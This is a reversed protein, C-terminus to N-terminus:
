AEDALIRETSELLIGGGEAGGPENSAQDSEVHGGMRKVREGHVNLLELEAVHLGYRNTPHNLIRVLDLTVIRALDNDSHFPTWKVFTSHVFERAAQTFRGARRLPFISRELQWALSWEAGAPATIDAGMLFYVRDVNAILEFIDDQSAGSIPTRRIEVGIQIPLEAVVRGIVARQNELDNTASVFMRLLEAM